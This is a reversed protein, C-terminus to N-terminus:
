KVKGWKRVGRKMGEGNGEEGTENRRRKMGEGNGEKEGTEKWM